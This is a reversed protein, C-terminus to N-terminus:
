RDARLGRGARRARARSRRRDPPRLLHRRTAHGGPGELDASRAHELRGPEAPGAPFGDGDPGPGGVPNGLVLPQRAYVKGPPPKVVYEDGTHATGPDLAFTELEEILFDTTQPEDPSAPRLLPAIDAYTKPRASSEGCPGLEVPRPGLLDAAMVYLMTAENVSEMTFQSFLSDGWDLLNDIYKMFISKQYAGPRLRAIAHPNFPDARYAALADADTLAARLSQIDQDRFGRYRWPRKAETVGPESATPNFLYHYWRQADAFSQQSNLHDAILFPIQFFVESFYGGLAADPGTWPAPAAATSFGRTTVEAASGLVVAASPKEDMAKSEQFDVRLLGDIQASTLATSMAQALSTGLSWLEFRPADSTALLLLSEGTPEMVVSSTNGNVVQLESRPPLEVYPGTASTLGTGDFAHQDNLSSTAAFFELRATAARLPATLYLQVGSGTVPALVPFSDYGPEASAPDPTVRASWLDVAEPSPPALDTRPAFELAIRAGDGAGVVSPYVREWQWGGPVYTEIPVTHKRSFADWQAWQVQKVSGGPHGTLFPGIQVVNITGLPRDNKDFTDWLLPAPVLYDEIVRTDLVDGASDAVKLTQPPTWRGDLRLYSFKSRVSHRYGTFTSAGDKFDTKQRTTTEVWFVYLRGHLVIPSIRRAPIQLDLKTWPSFVPRTPRTPTAAPPELGSITRYYYVPPESATVGFLHLVDMNPDSRDHFAGAVRLRAVENFGHLYKAYADLVNQETIPQQLLVDELEKFLPTKDDRLGPEIYNEPYLFVKRNAVWVQYNKRWAWEPQLNKPDELRAIVRPPNEDSQELNMLVRQVYLQVASIAFVVKSTRACGEILVDTLFYHYLDSATVFRRRWVTFADDPASLLYEVLGDRNRSRLKDTFPELKETFTAEDPYKARVAAFVGDAARALESTDDSVALRLLEAPVGLRATLALAGALQSLEDLRPAVTGGAALGIQSLVGGVAAADSTLARAIQTLATQDGAATAISAPRALVSRLAEADPALAEPQYGRDPSAALKAYLGARRVTEATRPDSWAWPNPNAQIFALAPADYAANRFLVANRMLADLVASLPQLPGGQVANVLASRDAPAAPMVLNLLALTKEPSVKVATSAKTALVSVAHHRTVLDVARHRLASKVARVDEQGTGFVAIATGEDVVARLRYRAVAGPVAEFPKGDAAGSSVNAQVLQAADTESLGLVELESPEFGSDGARKVIAYLDRAFGAVMDPAPDPDFVLAAAVDALGITRAVRWAGAGPVPELLASHGAAPPSNADIIAASQAQTLGMQTLLDRTIELSKEAMIEAALQAAVDDPRDYGDLTSSTGTVFHIEPISFGSAIRGDHVEVVARLDDLTLICRDTATSKAAISGTLAVTQLLDDVSLKLLRALRAYRYLLSLNREGLAFADSALGGATLCGSLGTLLLTLDADSVQMAAVLRAREAGSQDFAQDEAPWRRGQRVFSPLNFARDSLSVEDRLATMPVTDWLACLEDVPLHLRDQLELLQALQDVMPGDLQNPASRAALQLRVLVHDLEALTWPVHRWLRVLREFRDLRGSTLNLVLETDNQVGGPAAIGAELRIDKPAGPATGNVFGSALVESVVGLELGSAKAFYLIGIPDLSRTETEGPIVSLTLNAGLWLSFFAEAARIAAPSLDGLRSTTIIDFEKSVMGLRIQARSDADDPRLLFTDAIQARTIGLHSLFISLREAPLCFPLRISYDVSALQDYLADASALRKEKVIFQELMAIVLNLTPVVRNTNDCTLELTWLDQRRHYPHLDNAEGGVAKFSGNLIHREVWYMLDVFYAAPGLVSRCNECDCFDASGFLEDYGTLKKLYEPPPLFASQKTVQADRELTHLAFWILAAQDARDQAQRIYGRALEIPMGTQEAIETPERLALATASGLGAQLLAVGDLAGAGVAQMRQYAKLDAVVMSRAEDPLDAFNVQQISASDPLYDIALLDLDPNLEHVSDVWGVRERMTAVAADADAAEDIVGELGLGPHLNIFAQLSPEKAPPGDGGGGVAHRVANVVNDTVTTARHLMADTPFMAAIQGAVLTAYSAPTEWAQPQVGADGFAQEIDPVDLAALDRARRLGQDGLRPPKAGVIAAMAVQGGDVLARAALGLGARHADAGALQGEGVLKAVLGNTVEAVAGARRLIAAAVEGGLGTATVAARLADREPNPMSDLSSELAAALGDPIINDKIAALAATRLAGISLEVLQEWDDPLGERFWGYFWAAAVSGEGQAVPKADPAATRASYAFATALWAIHQREIGTDAALFDIDPDQLAAIPVASGDSAQGALLPVIADVHLEYESRQAGTDPIQLNVEAAEAANFMTASEVLLRDKRGVTVFVRVVLDAGGGGDAAAFQAGSYRIEYQGNADTVADSGLPQVSRLDRDGARVTYGVAAGGGPLTILGHVSFPTDDGDFAGLKKLLQNLVNATTKEVAGALNDGLGQQIQVIRVLRQTADGYSSEAQEERLKAALDALEQATPSDPPDLARIVQRELLLRLGDQLNVVQAGSDGPKVPAQIAQM